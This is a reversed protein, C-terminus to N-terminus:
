GVVDQYLLSVYFLTASFTTYSLLYVTASVTFSRARFLRPPMM